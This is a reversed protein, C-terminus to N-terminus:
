VAAPVPSVGPGDPRQPMRHDRFADIL